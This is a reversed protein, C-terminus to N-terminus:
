LDTAQACFLDQWLDTSSMQKRREERLVRRSLIKVFLFLSITYLASLLILSSESKHPQDLCEVLLLASITSSCCSKRKEGM